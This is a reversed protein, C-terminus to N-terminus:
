RGGGRAVRITYPKKAVCYGVGGAVLAILLGAIAGALFLGKWMDDFMGPGM